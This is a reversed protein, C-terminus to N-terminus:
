QTSFAAKVAELNEEDLWLDLATAALMKAGDLVAADGSSSSTHQAFEPTHIPVDEPSVKIM